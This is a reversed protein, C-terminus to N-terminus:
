LGREAARVAYAEDAMIRDQEVQKQLAEELRDGDAASYHKPAPIGHEKYIKARQRCAGRAIRRADSRAKDEDTGELLKLLERVQDPRGANRQAYEWLLRVARTPTCGVQSFSMDGSEKLSTELRINMQTAPM